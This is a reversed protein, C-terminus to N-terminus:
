KASIIKPLLFIYTLISEVRTLVINFNKKIALVCKRLGIVCKKNKEITCGESKWHFILFGVLFQKM